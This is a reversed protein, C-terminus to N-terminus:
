AEPRYFVFIGYRLAGFNYALWIRLTTLAFLRNRRGPNLLFRRYRRERLLRKALRVVVLLWTRKVSATIDKWGLNRFGAQTASNVLETGSMLSPIRGERCIPELLRRVQWRAPQESALWACIVLKGGPRLALFAQSFAKAKDTMHEFSECAIVTDFSEPLLSVRLWNGCVYRPNGSPDRSKAYEYQVRSLTIATVNAGAEQVLQRALAGYGCGVDCVSTGVEIGGWDRIWTGLRCVASEPSKTGRVWLGHHVHEGWLERYFSDLEDYHDAVDTEFIPEPSIIM